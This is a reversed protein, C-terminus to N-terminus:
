LNRCLFSLISYQRSIILFFIVKKKIGDLFIINSPNKIKTYELEDIVSQMEKKKNKINKPNYRNFVQAKMIIIIFRVVENLFFKELDNDYVELDNLARFQKRIVPVLTNSTEPRYNQFYNDMHEYRYYYFADDLYIIKRAYFFAYINFLNDQMRRLEPDFRLKYKDIFHKRYIKGWPVGIATLAIKVNQGYEPVMLQKFLEKKSAKSQFECKKEFFNVKKTKNKQFSICPSAIIDTLPTIANVLNTVMRNSLYDDPDVFMVWDGNSKRLGYNRATSVGGNNKSYVSIRDDKNKIKKCLKWSNDTSGDNIILIEIKKYTQILISEICKELYKEANYVPVIISILPNENQM